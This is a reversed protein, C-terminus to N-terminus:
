LTESQQRSIEAPTTGNLNRVALNLRVEAADGQKSGKQQAALPGAAFLCVAILLVSTKVDKM